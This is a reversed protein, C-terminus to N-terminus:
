QLPPLMPPPVPPPPTTPVSVAPQSGMLPNAPMASPPPAVQQGPGFPNSPLPMDLTDDAPTNGPTPESFGTNPVPAVTPAPSTQPTFAPHLEPGLQQAHLAAIPQAADNSGAASNLAAEVASRADDVNAAAIPAAPMVGNSLNGHEDIHVHPSDVSKEIEALTEDTSGPYIPAPLPTPPLSSPLVSAQASPVFAPPAKPAAYQPAPPPTPPQWSAPAPTLPAQPIFPDAPKRLAPPDVPPQLVSENHSLLPSSMAPLTLEETSPDLDENNANATMQANGLKPPETLRERKVEPQVGDDPRGGADVGHFQSILM